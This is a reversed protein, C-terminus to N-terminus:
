IINNSFLIVISDTPCQHGPTFKIITDDFILRSLWHWYFYVVIECSVFHFTMLYIYIKEWAKIKFNRESSLDVKITTLHM